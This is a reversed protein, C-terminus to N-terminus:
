KVSKRAVTSAVVVAAAAATPFNSVSFTKNETKETMERLIYISKSM